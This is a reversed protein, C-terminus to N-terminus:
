SCKVVVNQVFASKGMGTDGSFVVLEGPKIIYDQCNFIDAMNISKKTIDNQLYEVLSKTMDNVNKIDLTYDKRKFHICKPDCYESMIVDNCGYQYNGDYVNSVTRIVEEDDMAGASWQLMGNLAVVYPVGARKYTSSMRMMKMNRQGEIPGENFAHQMCTVVSTTDKSKYGGSSVAQSTSVILNQLYPEVEKDVNLTDYWGDEKWHKYSKYDTAMHKVDDYKLNWILSYPIFVKYLGTKKNLSWPARIIRTKDFISDAFSLHEKMTLKVKEHLLRSPQFGFVNLLEIHYGNGSFWINVHSKDIGLDEIEKPM